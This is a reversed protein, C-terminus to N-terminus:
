RHRLEGPKIQNVQLVTAFSSSHITRGSLPAWVQSVHSLLIRRLHSSDLNKAMLCSNVASGSSLLLHERYERGDMIWTCCFLRMASNRLRRMTIDTWTAKSCIVNPTILIIKNTNPKRSIFLLCIILFIVSLCFGPLIKFFLPYVFPLSQSMLFDLVAMDILDVLRSGHNYPPTQKVTDCYAPDKEWRSVVTFLLLIYSPYQRAVTM